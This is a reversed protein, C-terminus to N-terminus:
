NPPLSERRSEEEMLLIDRLQILASLNHQVFDIRISSDTFSGSFGGIARNPDKFFMANEPRYQMQLSFMVSNELADLAQKKLLADEDDGFDRMLAYAAGLGEARCATPTSRPPNYYSGYWDRVEPTLNQRGVIATTIRKLHEMYLPNQRERYLENLAYLLWHDHALRGISKDGDRVNILWKAGAEAADLWREDKDIAYLRTLALLAEGPYYESNFPMPTGEPFTMKHPAFEGNELQTSVIWRACRQLTEFHRKDGTAETYEALAVCALAAGGLKIEGGEVACLEDGEANPAPVIRDLLYGVAREGAELLEPNRTVTYLQYISYTTGAHRVINYDQDNIDQDPLYNYVFQGRPGVSRALYDGAATATELLLETDLADFLRHGRFLSVIEQGDTFYSRTTFRLGPSEGTQMAGQLRRAEDPRDLLFTFANFIEFEGNENQLGRGTIEGPLFALATERSFAAGMLPIRGDRLDVSDVESSPTVDEVIDVILWRVDADSRDRLSALADRTADALGDGSGMGVTAANEGDSASVFVIRQDADDAIADPLAARDLDRGTTAAKWIASTFVRLDRSGFRAEAEIDEFWIEPADVDSALAPTMMAATLAIACSAGLARMRPTWESVM